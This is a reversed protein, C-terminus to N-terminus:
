IKGTVDLKVSTILSFFLKMLGAMKANYYQALIIFDEYLVMFYDGERGDIYIM